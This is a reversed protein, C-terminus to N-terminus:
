PRRARHRPPGAPCSIGDQSGSLPRPITREQRIQTARKQLEGIRIGDKAQQKDKEQKHGRAHPHRPTNGAMKPSTRRRSATTRLTSQPLYELVKRFTCNRVRCPTETEPAHWTVNKKDMKRATRRTQKRDPHNAPPKPPM